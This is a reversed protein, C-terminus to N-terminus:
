KDSRDSPHAKGKSARKEDLNTEMSIYNHSAQDTKLGDSSSSSSGRVV